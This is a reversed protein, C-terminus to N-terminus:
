FLPGKPFDRFERALALTVNSIQLQVSSDPQGSRRVPRPARGVQLAADSPACPAHVANHAHFADSYFYM